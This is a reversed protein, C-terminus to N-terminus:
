GIGYALRIEEPDAVVVLEQGTSVASDEFRTAATAGVVALGALLLLAEEVLLSAM